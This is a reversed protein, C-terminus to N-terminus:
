NRVTEDADYYKHCSKDDHEMGAGARFRNEHFVASDRLPPDSFTVIFLDGYGEVCTLDPCNSSFIYGTDKHM